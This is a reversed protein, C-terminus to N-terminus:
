SVVDLSDAEGGSQGKVRSRWVGGCEVVGGLEKGHLERSIHGKAQERDSQHSEVGDKGVLNVIGQSISGRDGSRGGGSDRVLGGKRYAGGSSRYCLQLLASSDM